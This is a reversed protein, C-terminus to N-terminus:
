GEYPIMPRSLPRAAVSYDGGKDSDIVRNKIGSLFM